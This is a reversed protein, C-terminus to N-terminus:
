KHWPFSKFYSSFPTEEGDCADVIIKAALQSRRSGVAEQHSSCQLINSSERLHKRRVLEFPLV